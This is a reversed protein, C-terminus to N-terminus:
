WPRVLTDLYGVWFTRLANEGTADGEFRRKDAEAIAREYLGGLVFLDPKKARKESAICYAYGELSYESQTQVLTLTVLPALPFPKVM